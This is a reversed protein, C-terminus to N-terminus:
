RCMNVGTEPTVEAVTAGCYGVRGGMTRDRSACSIQKANFGTGEFPAINDAKDDFMWVRSAPIDIGQQQYWAVIGKVAEQKLGDPAGIVNPSVVAGRSWALASPARARLSAMLGNNLTHELLFGREKSGRGSGDGHSCLGLYCARCFTSGVGKAGFASMTLPGGGYATDYIGRIQEGGCHWPRGQRQTLTRDIDFVCLCAASTANVDTANEAFPDEADDDVVEALPGTKTDDEHDDNITGDDKGAEHKQVKVQLAELACSERDLGQSLCEDDSALAVDVGGDQTAAAAVVCAALLLQALFAAMIM